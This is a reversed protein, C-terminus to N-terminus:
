GPAPRATRPKRGRRPFRRRIVGAPPSADGHLVADVGLVELIRLVNDQEGTTRLTHGTDRLRLYAQMLANVGSSDLFGVGSLDVIVDTNQHNLLREKLQPATAMDVEGAVVVRVGSSGDRQVDISLETM